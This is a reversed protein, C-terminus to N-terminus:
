GLKKLLKEYLELDDHIFEFKDKMRKLEAFGVGEPGEILALSYAITFQHEHYAAKNLADKLPEIASKDGIEGLAMAALSNTQVFGVEEPTALLELLKPVAAVAKEGIKSLSFITVHCLMEYSDDLAKILQPVAREVKMDGLAEAAGVRVENELDNKLFDIITPIVKEVNLEGLATISMKRVAWDDDKMAEILAPIADAVEKMGDEANKHLNWAAEQRDEVKDSKLQEILEKVKEHLNEETM